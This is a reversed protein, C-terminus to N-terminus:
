ITKNDFRSKYYEKTRFDIADKVHNIFVDNSLYPKLESNLYIKDGEMTFFESSSKCLFHVPNKRALSVYEKEGWNNFKATSKDKLMDVKNSGKSYFEKFSKYLDNDDIELNMEGNNYFALIVPIKYTKSMSTNEIFKIFDHAFTGMLSSEENNIENNDNLFKIYDKFINIKSKKKMNSYLDNDMYTFMEVRSPIYGLDEKIKFYEAVIFDELKQSEKNMREFIDVLRFDFDIFCDEPYDEENPIFRANKTVKKSEGTLLYPVLNAKKYNGIFDLVNLYKKNKDKRLGRGLQQLFVTPSETPRLFMVMDISKVDLGENFMDVSFIVKIEEKRLKSLAINREENYEGESGSYVACSPIGQENFYKAMFEAHSKSTCFGLASSSKYKKYNNLILEARKNISLADELQRENYKGNKFEVEEYNVSEDYIGYYRFPVLWGKDIATKLTAEYVTNYDCISFVDKNDLRDPTATLGLMFKPTFYNIINQYNKSVAHHFEDVVIYDFYNRPFYQENLYNEKGLSQVSAFVIDKDTDKTSNMFFGMNYGDENYNNKSTIEEEAVMNAVNNFDNFKDIRVNKFSKYAQKLIEERHAIFLVRNFEKSDFAALYTKGIGTAAVVLAKDNGEERTKKLEYLAEIQAGRPEYLSTINSDEDYSYNIKEKKEEIQSFVKPRKWTKSYRELEEDNVIISENLFLDEFMDKFYNYDDKSTKKDIRYNWEIGSTLASRSLNSSGIFIEGDENNEFIYAKAHFSRNTDKYFRLDVKDGLIDKLLYLASPQTINLYNGTLIRIPINKDKIAELDKQLLKVGSEMLFSVIIDISTATYLSQQIRKYLHDNHGTVCNLNLRM